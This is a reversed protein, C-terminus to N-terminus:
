IFHLSMSRLPAIKWFLIFLAAFSFYFLLILSFLFTASVGRSLTTQWVFIYKYLLRSYLDLLRSVPGAKESKTELTESTENRLELFFTLSVMGKSVCLGRRRLPKEEREM